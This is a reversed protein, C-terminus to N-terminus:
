RHTAAHRPAPLPEARPGFAGLWSELESALAHGDRWRRDPNSSLCRAIIHHLTRRALQDLDCDNLIDDLVNNELGTAPIKLPQKALLAVLTCGLAYTDVEPGRGAGFGALVEPAIFGPTGAVIRAHRQDDTIREVLGWDLVTVSGDPALVLNAPKLDRHVWGRTHAHGVIRAAKAVADVAAHTDPRTAAKSWKSFPLGPALSMAFWARGDTLTGRDLVEPTGPLPHDALWRAEHRISGARRSTGVHRALKFAAKRHGRRASHVTGMAGKGLRAVLKWGGVQKPVPHEVAPATPASAPLTPDGANADELAPVLTIPTHAM